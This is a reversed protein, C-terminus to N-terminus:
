SEGGLDAYDDYRYSRNMNMVDWIQFAREVPDGFERQFEPRSPNMKARYAWSRKIEEYNSILQELTPLDDALDQEMCASCGGDYGWKVGHSCRNM